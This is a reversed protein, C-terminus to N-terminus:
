AQSGDCYEIRLRDTSACIGGWTEDMSGILAIQNRARDLNHGPYAMHYYHDGDIFDTLFRIAMIQTMSRGAEELLSAEHKHMFVGAESLYGDLLAEYYELSFVVKSLDPEDEMARTAV